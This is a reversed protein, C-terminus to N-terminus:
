AMEGSTNSVTYHLATMHDIDETMKTAGSLVSLPHTRYELLLKVVEVHGNESAWHLPTRGEKDRVTHNAKKEPFLATLDATGSSCAISAAPQLSSTENVDKVTLPLKVVAEQGREAAWSLPAQGNSERSNVAVGDIALLPEVVTEHGDTITPEDGREAGILHLKCQAVPVRPATKATNNGEVVLLYRILISSAYFKIYTYFSNIALHNIDRLHRCCCATRSKQRGVLRHCMARRVEVDCCGIM